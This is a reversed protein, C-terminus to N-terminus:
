FGNPIQAHIKRGGYDRRTQATALVRETPHVSRRTEQLYLACDAALAPLLADVATALPSAGGIRM